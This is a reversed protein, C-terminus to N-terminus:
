GELELRFFPLRYWPYMQQNNNQELYHLEMATYYFEAITENVTVKIIHKEKV